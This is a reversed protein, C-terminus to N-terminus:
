LLCRKCILNGHANGQTPLQGVCFQDSISVAFKQGTFKKSWPQGGNNTLGSSCHIRATALHM